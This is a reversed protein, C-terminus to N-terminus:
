NDNAKDEKMTKDKDEWHIWHKCGRCPEKKVPLDYHACSCCGHKVNLDM